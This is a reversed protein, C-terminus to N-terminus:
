MFSVQLIGMELFFVYTSGKRSGSPAKRLFTYFFQRYNSVIIPQEKQITRYFLIFYLQMEMFYVYLISVELFSM